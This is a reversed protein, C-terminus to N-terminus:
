MGGGLAMNAFLAATRTAAGGLAKSVMSMATTRWNPAMRDLSNIAQEIASLSPAVTPTSETLGNTASLELEVIKILEIECDLPSGNSSANLGKWVVAIGYHDNPNPAQCRTQTPPVASYDGTIFCNDSSIGGFNTLFNSANTGPGRLNMGAPGPTWRIEKENLTVRHREAGYTLLQDPTPTEDVSNANLALFQAPTIHEIFSVQGCNTSTQGLYRFKMCAGLTTAARFASFNTAGIIGYAPDPVSTGQVQTPATGTGLPPSGITNGNVPCTSPSVAEYHVVNFAQNALDGGCNHFGPWWIVYGVAAALTVHIPVIERVVRLITGTNSGRVSNKPISCPNSLAEALGTM